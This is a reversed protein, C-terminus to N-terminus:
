KRDLVGANQLREFDWFVYGWDRLWGWSRDVLGSHYGDAHAWLWGPPAQCRNREILLPSMKRRPWGYKESHPTYLDLGLAATLFRYEHKAYCNIGQRLLLLERERGIAQMLTQIYPLGLSLLHEIHYGQDPKGLISFLLCADDYFVGYGEGTISNWDRAEQLTKPSPCAAQLADVAADEALDFIGRIRRCLYNRICAVEAVEYPPTNQFFLQGQEFVTLSPNALCPRTKYDSHDQESSCRAVLQRYMEFRHFARRLRSSESNSLHLPPGDEQPTYCTQIIFEASDKLQTLIPLTNRSYDDIFFRVTTDFRILCISVSLPLVVTLAQHRLHPDQEFCRLVNERSFPPKELLSLRDILLAGYIEIYHCQGRALSSLTYEKNSRFIHYLRPSAHILNHLTAICDSYSLIQIQLEPCLQELASQGAM